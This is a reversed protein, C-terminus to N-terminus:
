SHERSRQDGFCRSAPTMGMTRRFCRTLHSQDSWGCRCAVDSPTASTNAIMRKTAEMRRSLVDAHVTIGFTNKFVRGFNAKTLSVHRAVGAVTIRAAINDDVYDLAGRARWGSLMGPALASRLPGRTESVASSSTAEIFPTDEMFIDSILREAAPALTM